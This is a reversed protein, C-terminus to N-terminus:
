FQRRFQADLLVESARHQVPQTNRIRLSSRNVTCMKFISSNIFYNLEVNMNKVSFVLFFPTALTDMRRIYYNEILLVLITHYPIQAVM